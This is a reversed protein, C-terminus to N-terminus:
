DGIEQRLRRAALIGVADDGRMVNGLGIVRISSPSPDIAKM